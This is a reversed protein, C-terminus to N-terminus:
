LRKYDSDAIIYAEIGQDEYFLINGTKSFRFNEGDFERSVDQHDNFSNWYDEIAEYKPDDDDSSIWLAKNPALKLKKLATEAYNVWMDDGAEKSLKIYNAVTLKENIQSENVFQEFTLFNKM